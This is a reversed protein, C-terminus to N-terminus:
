RGKRYVSLGFSTPGKFPVEPNWLDSAGARKLMKEYDCTDVSQAIHTWINTYYQKIRNGHFDNYTCNITKSIGDIKKINQEDAFRDICQYIKQYSANTAGLIVVVGGNRLTKFVSKIEEKQKNVQEETTLYNSFIVLNYNPISNWWWGSYNPLEEELSERRQDASRLMRGQKEIEQFYLGNFNQFTSHFPGPRSSYESFLHFFRCMDRNKEVIQVTPSPLVSIRPVNREKAFNEFERYFDLSAYVSPAPGTGVDLIMVGRDRLPLVGGKLLATMVEWFRHYRELFHIHTFALVGYWQEYVADYNKLAPILSQLFQECQQPDQLQNLIFRELIEANKEFYTERIKRKEIWDLFPDRNELLLSKWSRQRIPSIKTRM